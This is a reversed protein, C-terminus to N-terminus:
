VNQRKATPLAQGRAYARLTAAGLPFRLDHGLRERLLYRVASTFEHRNETRSALIAAADEIVELAADGTIENARFKELIDLLLGLTKMIEDRREMLPRRGLELATITLEARPNNDVPYPEGARFGILREPDEAGPDIFLPQEACLAAQDAHSCARRAPATLPFLAQKNRRNCRECAYYLNTWEYALWYYGPRSPPDARSQRVAAKPRFHEVDGDSVHSVKAECFCCKDHQAERLTQKVSEHSYVERAFEFTREGTAFASPAADHDAVHGVRQEVGATLLLEPARTPKHVRIM